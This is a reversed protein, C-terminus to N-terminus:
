KPQLNQCHYGPFFTDLLKKKKARSAIQLIQITNNKTQEKFM